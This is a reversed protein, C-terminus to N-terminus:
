RAASLLKRGRDLFTYLLPFRLFLQDVRELHAILAPKNDLMRIQRCLDRLDIEHLKLELTMFVISRAVKVRMLDRALSPPEASIRQFHGLMTRAHEPKHNRTIGDPNDRYAVLSQSHLYIKYDRFFIYSLTLLDEYFVRESPFPNELIIQRAFVRTWAFWKGVGYIDDRVDKIDYLGDPLRHCPIHYQGTLNDDLVRLANFQIIDPRRANLISLVDAIYSALIFDDSDLFAIYAGRAAEVGTNRAAGLGNNKTCILTLQGQSLVDSFDREVLEVSHDTSGDDVLVVECDPTIQDFVSRLCTPLFAAGNYNPIVISLTTTM